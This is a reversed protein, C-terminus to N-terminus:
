AAPPTLDRCRGKLVDMTAALFGRWPTFSRFRLCRISARLPLTICRLAIYFIRDRPRGALKGALLWHGRNIHYEYFLSGNRASGSGSHIIVAEPCEAFDINKGHLRHGFEVDEGYFFFDENLMPAAALDARILLCCGSPYPLCARSFRSRTLLASPRHYFGLLSSENAGEDERVRPFVLPACDLMRLLSSLCGSTMRADSNILLVASPRFDAVRVLGANVGGAFGLNRAATVIELALGILRLSDLADRVCALSRGEDESNDVIVIARVGEDVMSKVCGLTQTETRFHLVLGAVETTEIPM